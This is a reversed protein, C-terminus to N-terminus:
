TLKLKKWPKGYPLPHPSFISQVVSDSKQRLYVIFPNLKKWSINQSARDFLVKSNKHSGKGEVGEGCGLM